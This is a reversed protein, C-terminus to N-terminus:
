GGDYLRRQLEEDDGDLTSYLVWRLSLLSVEEKWAWRMGDM